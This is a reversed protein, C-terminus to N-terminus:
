TIEKAARARLRRLLPCHDNTHLRFPLGFCQCDTDVVTGGNKFRHVHVRVGNRSQDELVPREPITQRCSRCTAM